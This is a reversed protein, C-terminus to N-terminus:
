YNLSRCTPTGCVYTTGVVCCFQYGSVCCVSNSGYGCTYLYPGDCGVKAKFITYFQQQLKVLISHEDLQEDALSVQLLELTRDLHRYIDAPVEGLKPKLPGIVDDLLQSMIKHALQKKNSGEFLANLRESVHDNIHDLSCNCCLAIAVITFCLLLLRSYSYMKKINLQNILCHFPQSLQRAKLREQTFTVVRLKDCHM